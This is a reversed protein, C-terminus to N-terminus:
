RESRWRAEGSRERERLSAEAAAVVADVTVDLICHPDPAQCGAACPPRSRAPRLCRAGPGVPGFREPANPGNPDGDEEHCSVVIAPVDLAGAMHMPASDNGLLLDAAGIYGTTESLSARGTVDTTPGGFRAAIAESASADGPGGVRVAHVPHHSALRDLVAAFREPPWERKPRGAGPAVVVRVQGPAGDAALRTEAAARLEPPVDLTTATSAPEIGLVQLPLLAREREHRLVRDDIPHTLLADAGRNARAKGANVRESFGVRWRARSLYAVMVAHYIDTDWRPVLALDWRRRWLARRCLDLTRQQCVLARLARNKVGWDLVFTEDVFRCAGALDHVMPKVVQAIHADPLARRLERLLPTTLVWDGIEDLRVVLVHRLQARDIPGLRAAPVGLLPGLAAAVAPNAPLQALARALERPAIM